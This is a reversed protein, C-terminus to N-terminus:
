ELIARVHLGNQFLGGINETNCTFWKPVAWDARAHLGNQFPGSIYEGRGMQVM